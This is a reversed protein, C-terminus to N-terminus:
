VVRTRDPLPIVPPREGPGAPRGYSYYYHLTPDAHQLDVQNVVAALVEVGRIALRDKAKRVVQVDFGGAKVVLLVGDVLESISEAPSMVAIPPSDVIVIDFMEALNALVRDFAAMGARTLFDGTPAGSTLVMLNPEAPQLCVEIQKRLYPRQTIEAIQQHLSKEHPQGEPLLHLPAQSISDDGGSEAFECQPQRMSRIRHLREAIQVRRVTQLAEPQVYGLRLVIQALSEANGACLRLADDRQSPNLLGRTTLAEALLQDESARAQFLGV